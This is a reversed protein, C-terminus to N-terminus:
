RRPPMSPPWTRQRTTAGRPVALTAATGAVGVCLAFAPGGAITDVTIRYFGAPWRDGDRLAVLTLGPTPTAAVLVPVVVARDGRLLREVHIGGPVVEPPSIVGLITQADDVITGGRCTTGLREPFLAALDGAGATM